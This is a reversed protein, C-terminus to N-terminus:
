IHNVTVSMGALNPEAFAQARCQTLRMGKGRSKAQKQHGLMVPFKSSIYPPILRDALPEKECDIIPLKDMIVFPPFLMPAVATRNEAEIDFAM